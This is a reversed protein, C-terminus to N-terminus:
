QLSGQPLLSDATCVYLSHGYYHDLFKSFYQLCGPLFVSTDMAELFDSLDSLIGRSALQPLWPIDYMYVDYQVDPHNASHSAEIAEYLHHHPLIDFEAHIGSEIEFNHVLSCFTHVSPSDLMLLRITRDPDPAPPSAAARCLPMPRCVKSLRNPLRGDLIIQESEQLLPSRLKNMLLQASRTGLRM